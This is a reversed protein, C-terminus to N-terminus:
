NAHLMLFATVLLFRTTSLAQIIASLKPTLWFKIPRVIMATPVERGSSTVEITAVPFPSLPRASPLAIPDFIKLIRNIRPIEAAIVGSETRDSDTISQMKSRSLAMRSYMKARLLFDM